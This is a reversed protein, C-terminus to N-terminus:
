ETVCVTLPHVEAEAPVTFAVILWVGEAGVAPADGFGIQEPLANVSVALPCLPAVNVHVYGSPPPAVPEGTVLFLTVVAM